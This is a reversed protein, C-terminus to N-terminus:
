LICIQNLNEQGFHFSPTTHLFTFTSRLPPAEAQPPLVLLIGEEQQALGHGAKLAHHQVEGVFM